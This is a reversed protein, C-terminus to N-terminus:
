IQDEHLKRGCNTCYNWRYQDVIGDPGCTGCPIMKRTIAEKRGLQYMLVGYALMAIVVFISMSLEISM